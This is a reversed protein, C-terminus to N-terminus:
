EGDSEGEKCVNMIETLKRNLDRNMEFFDDWVDMNISDDVVYIFADFATSAFYAQKRTLTVPHETVSENELWALENKVAEAFDITNKYWQSERDAVFNVTFIYSEVSQYLTEAQWRTVM